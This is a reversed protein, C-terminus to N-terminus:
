PQQLSYLDFASFALQQPSRLVGKTETEALRGLLLEKDRM